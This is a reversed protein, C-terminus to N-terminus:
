ITSAGSTKKGKVVNNFLARVIAIPNIGPHYYFYKDEKDIITKKLLPTIENLETKMRWKEDSSLFSHLVTGDSATITQSYQINVKLPFILNLFLFLFLPILVAYLFIRFIKKRLLNRLPKM